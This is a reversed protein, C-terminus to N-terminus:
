VNANIQQAKYRNPDVCVVKASTRNCEALPTV